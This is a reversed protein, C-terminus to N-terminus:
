YEDGEFLDNDGGYDILLEEGAEIDRTAYHRMVENVTDLIYACNAEPDHNFMPAFGFGLIMEDVESSPESAYTYREITPANEVEDESFTCYPSEQIVDYQAIDQKTFLGWRHVDSRGIFVNPNLYLETLELNM